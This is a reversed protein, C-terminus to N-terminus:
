DIVTLDSIVSTSKKRDGFDIIVEVSMGLRTVGTVTGSGWVVHRVRTGVQINIDRMAKREEAAERWNKDFWYEDVQQFPNQIAFLRQRTQDRANEVVYLWYEGKHQAAASYQTRSMKTGRDTWEGDLGKVEIIRRSGDPAASIIDYGPNTHPQEMPSRGHREEYRMAARIAGIDVLNAIDTDSRGTNAEDGERDGSRTVYSVMRETRTKGGVQGAGRTRGSHPARQKGAGNAAIPEATPGTAGFDDTGSKCGYDGKTDAAEHSRSSSSTPGASSGSRGVVELPDQELPAPEETPGDPEDAAPEVEDVNSAPQGEYAEDAIGGEPGKEMVDDGLAEGEPLEAVWAGPPAFGSERLFFEADETKEFRMVQSAIGVMPAIDM